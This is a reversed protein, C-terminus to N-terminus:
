KFPNQTIRWINWLLSSLKLTFPVVRWEAVQDSVKINFQLIALRNDLSVDKMKKVGIPSKQWWLLWNVCKHGKTKSHKMIIPKIKPFLFFPWLHRTLLHSDWSQKGTVLCTSKGDMRFGERCQCYYSGGTNTCLHMCPAAPPACEDLDSTFFFNTFYYFFILFFHILM